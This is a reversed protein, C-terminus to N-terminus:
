LREGISKLEMFHQLTDPAGGRTNTGSLKMGGFSHVGMLAGTCKRNFYLNAAPATGVLKSGCQLRSWLASWSRVSCRKRSDTYGLVMAPRPSPGNNIAVGVVQVGKM